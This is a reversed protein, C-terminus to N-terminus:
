STQNRSLSQLYMKLMPDRFQADPSDASLWGGHILDRFIGSLATRKVGVASALEASRKMAHGCALARLVTRQVSTTRQSLTRYYVDARVRVIQDVASRVAEETLLQPLESDSSPPIWGGVSIIDFLVRAQGGSAEALLRKASDAIPRQLSDALDQAIADASLAGLTVVVAQKHFAGQHHGVNKAVFEDNAATYFVRLKQVLQVESRLWGVLGAGRGGALADLNKIILAARKRQAFTELAALAVAVGGGVPGKRNPLTTSGAIADVAEISAAFMLDWEIVTVDHLARRLLCTRGSGADGLLLLRRNEAFSQRVERELEPFKFVAKM